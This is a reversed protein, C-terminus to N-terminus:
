RTRRAILTAAAKLCQCRYKGFRVATANKQQAKGNNIALKRLMQLVGWAKIVTLAALDAGVGMQPFRIVLSELEGFWVPGSM